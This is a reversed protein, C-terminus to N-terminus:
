EAAWEKAWRYVYLDQIEDIPLEGFFHIIMKEITFEDYDGHTLEEQMKEKITQLDVHDQSEHNLLIAWDELEQYAASEFWTLSGPKDFYEKVAYLFFYAMRSYTDNLVTLKNM